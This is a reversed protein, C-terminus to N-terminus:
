QSLTSSCTSVLIVTNTRYCSLHHSKLPYKQAKNLVSENKNQLWAGLCVGLTAPVGHWYLHLHLPLPLLFSLTELLGLALVAGQGPIPVAQLQEKHLLRSSIGNRSSFTRSPAPVKRWRQYWTSHIWQPLPMSNRLHSCTTASFQKLSNSWLQNWPSKIVNPVWCFPFM